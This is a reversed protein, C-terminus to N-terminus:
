FIMIMAKKSGITPSVRPIVADRARAFMTPSKDNSSFSSEEGSMIHSFNQGRDNRLAQLLTRADVDETARDPLSQDHASM